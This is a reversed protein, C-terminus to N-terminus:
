IAVGFTTAICYMSSNEWRVSRSGDTSNDWYCSAATHLGAGNKEMVVCTCIYKFPKNMATMRKIVEEVVKNAWQAVQAHNYKEASLTADIVEKMVNNADDPVFTVQNLEDQAAAAM